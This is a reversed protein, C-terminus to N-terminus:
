AQAKFRIVTVAGGDNHLSLEGRLDRCVLRQILDFGVSDRELQLVEQPYGPGDDRYEFRVTDDERTIGVAIHATDREQLAHKATNTALENIVLALSHAQDPTVQVPSPTIDVSIHKSPPLMQLSSHIVQATLESLPLPAWESASLLSHVSTLSLVRNILNRIISQVVAQDETETRSREAYLLGIIAALNNKVRHNVERLLMSKTEADQRAQEYLRANEIAAAAHGAFARLPGVHAQAFFGPTASNVNLFGIVEGRVIIPVAAYSRPWKRQAPVYIWGPYTATDPIVM